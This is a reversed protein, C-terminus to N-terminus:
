ANYISLECITQDENTIIRVIQYDIHDNM